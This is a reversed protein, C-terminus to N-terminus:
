VVAALARITAVETTRLCVTSVRSERWAALQDAIRDIPGALAVEDVLADPVAAIADSKRGALFAEQIARAAREYGLRVAVDFYYNRERAGMGGIYLALMPRLRDRCAALDPGLSIQPCAVIEIPPLDPSREALGRDLDSLFVQEQYPSYFIPLWGDAIRGTLEVSKPGLSALFVPISRRVPHLVTKLPKGLGTAGEGRYPLEYRRGSYEVPASRSIALRVIDVYEEATALPPGYRVGHWGEVVQPGSLGLGLVFRGGSLHDLSMATMATMAPTRAHLQMVASGIRLASTSAALYGLASVADSGYAEGVWVSDYGSEDAARIAESIRPLTAGGDGLNLGLRVTV